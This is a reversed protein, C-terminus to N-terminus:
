RLTTTYNSSLIELIVILLPRKKIKDLTPVITPKNYLLVYLSQTLVFEKAISGIRDEIEFTFEIVTSHKLYLYRGSRHIQVNGQCDVRVLCPVGLGM